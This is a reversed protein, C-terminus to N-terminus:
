ESKETKTEIKYVLYNKDDFDEELKKSLVGVFDEWTMLSGSINPLITASKEYDAKIVLVGFKSPDINKIEGDNLPKWRDIIEDIRINIKEKEELKIKEFRPDNLANIINEILELVINEEIEKINGSSWRIEQSVYLSVFISAKRELLSKDKIEIEDLKPTRLNKFYFDIIQKALDLM